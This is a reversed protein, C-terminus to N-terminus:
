LSVGGSGVQQCGNWFIFSSETKLPNKKKKGKTKASSKVKFKVNFGAIPAIQLNFSIASEEAKKKKKKPAQVVEPSLM